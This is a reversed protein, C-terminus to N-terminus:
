CKFCSSFVGDSITDSNSGCKDVFKLFFQHKMSSTDYKLRQFKGNKTKNSMNSIFENVGKKYWCDILMKREFITLQSKIMRM